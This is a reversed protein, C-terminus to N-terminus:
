EIKQNIKVKNFYLLSFQNLQKDTEFDILEQLKDNLNFEKKEIKKEDVKLILYGNVIKIPKTIENIDIKNLEDIIEDSLQSKNVWGIEGGLKTSDSISYINASNKFGINSISEKILEYKKNIEDVNNVSYLIESLLYLEEEKNTYKKKIKNELRQANIEVKNHFKTYILNNWLKEIKIKDTIEKYTIQYNSLYKQFDNKNQFNLKKYLDIVILDIQQINKNLDYINELVNRKITEKILSDKALDIIKSEEISSLENNLAILYQAEKKIDLNTIIKNNIKLVIEVEQGAFSLNVFINFFFLAVIFNKKSIM